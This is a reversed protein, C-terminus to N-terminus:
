FWLMGNHWLPGETFSFGTAIQEIPADTSILADLAPDIREIRASPATNGQQATTATSLAALTVAAITALARM